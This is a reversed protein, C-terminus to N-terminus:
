WPNGLLAIYKLFSFNTKPFNLLCLNVPSAGPLAKLWFNCMNIILLGFLVVHKSFKFCIGQRQLPWFLLQIPQSKNSSQIQSCSWFNSPWFRFTKNITSLQRARGSIPLKFTISYYKLDGFVVDIVWSISWPTIRDSFALYREQIIWCIM